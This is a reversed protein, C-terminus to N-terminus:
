RAQMIEFRFIIEQQNCLRIQYQEKLLYENLMRKSSDCLRELLVIVGYSPSVLALFYTVEQLVCHDVLEPTSQPM